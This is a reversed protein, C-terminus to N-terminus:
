PQLAIYENILIITEFSDHSTLGFIILLQLHLNPITWKSIRFFCSDIMHKFKLVGQSWGARVGWNGSTSILSCMIAYWCPVGYGNATKCHLLQPLILDIIEWCWRCSWWHFLFLLWQGNTQHVQQGQRTTERKNTIQTKTATKTAVAM